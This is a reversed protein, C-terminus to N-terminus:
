DLLSAQSQIKKLAAIKETLILCAMLLGMLLGSVNRDTEITIM